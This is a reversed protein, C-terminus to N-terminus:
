RDLRDRGSRNTRSHDGLPPDHSVRAGLDHHARLGAAPDDLDQDILLRLDPFAVQDGDEIAVLEPRRPELRHGADGLGLRVEPKVLALDVALLRKEVLPSAGHLVEVAVAPTEFGRSRRSAASALVRITAGMSPTTVARWTWAPSVTSREARITV